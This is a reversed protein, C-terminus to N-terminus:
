RDAFRHKSRAITPLNLNLVPMAPPALPAEPVSLIQHTIRAGAVFLFSTLPVLTTTARGKSPSLGAAQPPEGM